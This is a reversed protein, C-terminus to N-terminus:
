SGMPQLVGLGGQGMLLEWIQEFEVDMSRHHWGVM